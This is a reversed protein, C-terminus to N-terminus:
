LFQTLSTKVKRIRQTRRPGNPDLVPHVDVTVMGDADEHQNQTRSPVKKTKRTGQKGRNNLKAIEKEFLSHEEQTMCYKSDEDQYTLNVHSFISSFKVTITNDSPIFYYSNDDNGTEMFQSFVATLKDKNTHGYPVPLKYDKQGFDGALILRQLSGVCLVKDHVFAYDDHLSVQGDGHRPATRRTDFEQRQRVRRLRYFIILLM